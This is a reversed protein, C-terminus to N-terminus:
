LPGLRLLGVPLYQSGPTGHAARTFLWREARHQSLVSLCSDGQRDGRQATQSRRKRRM